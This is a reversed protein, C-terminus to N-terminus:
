GDDGRPKQAAFFTWALQRERFARLWLEFREITEDVLEAGLRSAFSSRGDVLAGLVNEWSRVAHESWDEARVDAFGARGLEEEYRERPWFGPTGVATLLRREFEAPMPEAATFDTAVLRGGPRVVRIAEALVAAKDSAYLWSEQCWYVDFSEDEFPLQQFDAFEFRVRDAVGDREARERGLELQGESINTAHVRAGFRRALYRAAGGIGCATELLTDGAAIGAAEALRETARESAVAHPEDPSAYIGLHINEGGWAETLVGYADFIERVREGTEEGM